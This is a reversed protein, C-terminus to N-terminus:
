IVRREDRTCYLHSPRHEGLNAPTLYRKNEVDFIKYAHADLFGVVAQANELKEKVTAGHMEIYLDPSYKALVSVMGRLAPFELGEIDIKIVDPPPLAKTEVHDDLPLVTIEVTRAGDVSSTIQRAIAQEATGAGPMLPDFVLTAKGPADSVGEDIVRVNTLRNLRLNEECKARNRPNPEFAIVQQAHRSFYLTLLGEFAGIDYVTKGQLPLSRLFIEEETPKGGLPVFGLGGKRKMGQALGHRVTYTFNGFLKQSVFAIVKHRIGFHEARFKSNV